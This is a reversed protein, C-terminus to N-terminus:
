SLTPDNLNIVVPNALGDQRMERGGVPAPAVVPKGAHQFDRPLGIRLHQRVMEQSGPVAEAGALEIALGGALGFGRQRKIV